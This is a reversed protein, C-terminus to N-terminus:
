QPRQLGAQGDRDDGAGSVLHLGPDEGRRHAQDRDGQEVEVCHGLLRICCDPASRYRVAVGLEAAAARAYEISRSSFDLDTVAAAQPLWGTRM